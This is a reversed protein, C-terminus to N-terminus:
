FIVIIFLQYKYLMSEISYRYLMKIASESDVLVFEPQEVGSYEAVMRIVSGPYLKKITYSKSTSPDDPSTAGNEFAPAVGIVKATNIM